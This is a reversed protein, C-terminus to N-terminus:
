SVNYNCYLSSVLEQMTGYWMHGRHPVKGVWDTEWGDGVLKIACIGGLSAVFKVETVDGLVEFNGQQDGNNSLNQIYETGFVTITSSSLFSGRELPLNYSSPCRLHSALRSTEGAITVFISYPTM